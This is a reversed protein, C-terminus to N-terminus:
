SDTSGKSSRTAGEICMGEQAEKQHTKQGVCQSRVDKEFRQELSVRRLFWKQGVIMMLPIAFM